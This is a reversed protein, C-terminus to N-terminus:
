ELGGIMSLTFCQRMSWKAVQGARPAEIRDALAASPHVELHFELELIAEGRRCEIGHEFREAAADDIRKRHARASLTEDHRYREDLLDDLEVGCLEHM